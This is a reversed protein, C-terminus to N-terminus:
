AGAESEAAPKKKSRARTPEPLPTERMDWRQRVVDGQGTDHLLEDREASLTGLNDMLTNIYTVCARMQEELKMRYGILAMYANETEDILALVQALRRKMHESNEYNVLREDAKAEPSAAIAKIVTAVGMEEALELLIRQGETLTGPPSKMDDLLLYDISVDLAKAIKIVFATSPTAGNLWSSVQPQATGIAEALDGQSLRLEEMRKRVKDSFVGVVSYGDGTALKGM